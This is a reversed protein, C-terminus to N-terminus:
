CLEFVGDVIRFTQQKELRLTIFGIPLLHHRRHFDGISERDDGVIGRQRSCQFYSLLERHGHVVRRARDFASLDPDPGKAFSLTNRATASV